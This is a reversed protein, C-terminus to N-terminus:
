LVEMAAWMTTGERPGRQPTEPKPTQNTRTASM